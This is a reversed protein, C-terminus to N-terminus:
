DYGLLPLARSSDNFHIIKIFNLWVEFVTTSNLQYDCQSRYRGYHFPFCGLGEISTRLDSSLSFPSSHEFVILIYAWFCGDDLSLTVAWQNISKWASFTVPSLETGFDLTNGTRAIRYCLMGYVMSPLGYPNNSADSALINVHTVIISLLFRECRFVLSEWELINRIPNAPVKPWACACLRHCNM